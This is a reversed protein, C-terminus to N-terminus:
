DVIASFARECGRTECVYVEKGLQIQTLKIMPKDCFGCYVDGCFEAGIKGNHGSRSGLVLKIFNIWKIIQKMVMGM